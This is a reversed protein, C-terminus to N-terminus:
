STEHITRIKPIVHITKDKKVYPLECKARPMLGAAMAGAAGSLLGVIILTKDNLFYSLAILIAYFIIKAADIASEMAFIYEQRSNEDAHLYYESTYPAQRLSSVLSRAMNLSIIQVFTDVFTVLVFIFGDLLSGTTIFRHRNANNVRKGVLYTVIITMVLAASTIFGVSQYSKVSAYVFLPWFVLSVSAEIGAGGYSILDRSINGLKIKSLDIPAGTHLESKKLLPTFVLALMAIVILYLVGFGFRSAILGGALPAVAGLVALIIYMKSVDRTADKKKTSRSFDYHYGQWYLALAIGGCLGIFWLPWHYAPLTSLMWFHAILPPMSLAIAHKPGVKSIYSASVFEFSLETVFMVLHLVLVDRLSYGLSLLYIPVFISIMSCVFSRMSMVLFIENIETHKIRFMQHQVLQHDSISM